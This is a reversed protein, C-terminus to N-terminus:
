QAQIEAIKKRDIYCLIGGTGDCMTVSFDGAMDRHGKIKEVEQAKTNMSLLFIISVLVSGTIIKYLHKM